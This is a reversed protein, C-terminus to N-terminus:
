DEIGSDSSDILYLFTPIFLGWMVMLFGTFIFNYLTPVHAGVSGIMGLLVGIIQIALGFNPRRGYYNRYIIELGYSIDLKLEKIWILM